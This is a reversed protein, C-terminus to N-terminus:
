RVYRILDTSPLQGVGLHRLITVIQGRHYTGHNVVHFLIEEVTNSFSDGKLNTYEIKKLVFDPKKGEVFSLLNRSSQILGTTLDEKAGRFYRSPMERISEGQLRKLWVVEADWIHLLTKNLSDFSSQVTEAMLIDDLPRITEAIHENAWANYKLHNIIGYAM